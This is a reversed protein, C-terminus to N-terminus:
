VGDGRISVLLFGECGRWVLIKWSRKKVYLRHSEQVVPGSTEACILKEDAVAVSCPLLHTPGLSHQLNGAQRSAAVSPKESIKVLRFQADVSAIRVKEVRM